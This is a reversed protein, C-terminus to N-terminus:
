AYEAIEGFLEELRMKDAAPLSPQEMAKVNEELHALNSTGTLVTSIAPHDAAFKYGASVISTVDDHILWALPDRTELSGADVLGRQKWDAILGELLDPRPLKIRVTAMNLIGVDHEVALPLVERTAYQNLIGYKLMLADWFDPNTKLALAATEHAPDAIYRESFGIFRIKGQQQLRRMVPGFREVVEHYQERRLGHFQMIDIFDTQLRQLSKEVGTVLAEPDKCVPGDKGGVGRPSWEKAHSWKTSLLYSDRPVNNLASGLIEEGQGYRTSTDFLNIGLDLCRHILADQEKETLDTSHGIGSPGGTGFSLLSVNLNTRGLRRYQM